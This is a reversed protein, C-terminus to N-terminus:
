LSMFHRNGHLDADINVKDRMFESFADNVKTAM